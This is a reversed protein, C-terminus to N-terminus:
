FQVEYARMSGFSDRRTSLYVGRTWENGSMLTYRENRPTLFSCRFGHLLGILISVMHGNYWIVM